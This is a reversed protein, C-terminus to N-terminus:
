LLVAAPLYLVLPSNDNNSFVKRKLEWSGVFIPHGALQRAAAFQEIGDQVPGSLLPNELFLTQLFPLVETAREGVLERLAPAIRPAYERSIYLGKVDTFQHLLELWQSNEIDDQRCPQYFEGEVIYLREVMPILAQRFFSSCVQELSSLQWDSQKCVIGLNLKGDFAKVSVFQDSFGINVEDHAKFKLTRSIFQTIQPTELILQHFLNITLNDVLPADILAVLDELYECVGRFRLNTLDPLLTRTLSPPRRSKRDPRSQPSEFGICLSKLRALVSLCNAMTEPSIYGSHPVHWLELHVLHTASLLLKPLGVYLIRHLQLTELSQASGGLFSAPVVPPPRIYRDGLSLYTLAPFPQQMEALVEQLQSSPIRNLILQYIRDNHELAAIINDVGWKEHGFELVGIPLLPWVNLTERVPTSANCRLQLNLRLPSGFIVNRWKRCVHVLTDWEPKDWAGAYSLVHFNFIELLAVDPLVDITM